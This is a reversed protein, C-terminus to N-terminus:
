ACHDQQDSTLCMRDSDSGCDILIHEWKAVLAPDIKIADSLVTGHAHTEIELAVM